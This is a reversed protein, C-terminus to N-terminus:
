IRLKGGLNGTELMATIDGVGCGKVKPDRFTNDVIWDYIAQAKDVERQEGAVITHSTAAVIGDTRILQSPQRFYALTAADEQRRASPKRRLDIQRDRTQFSVRVELQPVREGAPWEAFVLATGYKDYHVVRASSVNGTWHSPESQFYEMAHTLPVPVWARVPGVADTIQLRTSIEFTRWVPENAYAQRASRSVGSLVVGAAM